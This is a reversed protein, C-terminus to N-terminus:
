FLRRMGLLLQARVDQHLALVPKGPLEVEIRPFENEDVLCPRGGIQRAFASSALPTSPQADSNRVAMVLRDREDGAQAKRAQHRLLREVLRHVGCREHL